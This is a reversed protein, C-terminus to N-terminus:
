RNGNENSGWAYANKNRTTQQGQKVCRAKSSRIDAAENGETGISAKVWALICGKVRWKLNELAEATKLAISSIFDISNLSKLAVQSDTLIQVYKPRMTDHNDDMYKCAQYIAEMEAQYVTAHEQM